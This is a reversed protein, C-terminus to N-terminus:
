CLLILVNQNQRRTKRSIRLFEHCFYNRLNHNSKSSQCVSRKKMLNTEHTNQEFIYRGFLHGLFCFIYGKFLKQFLAGEFGAVKSCSLGQFGPPSVTEVNCPDLFSMGVNKLNRCFFTELSSLLSKSCKNFSHLPRAVHNKCIVVGLITYFQAPAKKELRSVKKQLFKFFTPIDNKLWHLTSVTEGRPKQPREQEFTAPNSPPEKWFSKLPQM